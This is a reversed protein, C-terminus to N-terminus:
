IYKGSGYRHVLRFSNPVLQDHARAYAINGVRPQGFTILLLDGPKLDPPIKGVMKLEKLKQGFGANWISQLSEYFYHQVSGGAPFSKKPEKLYLPM